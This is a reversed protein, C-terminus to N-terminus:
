VEDHIVDFAFGKFGVKVFHSPFQGYVFYEGDADLEGGDEFVQVCVLRGNYKAVEFGGVDHEGGVIVDEQDVKTDGAEEFGPLGSVCGGKAGQAIGRGFLVAFRLCRGAGIDVAKAHGEM